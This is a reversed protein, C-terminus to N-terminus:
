FFFEVGVHGLRTQIQRMNLAKMMKLWCSSLFDDYPLEDADSVPVVLVRVQTTLYKALKPNGNKTTNPGGM